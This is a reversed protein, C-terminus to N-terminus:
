ETASHWSAQVLVRRVPCPRIMFIPSKPMLLCSAPELGLLGEAATLGPKSRVSVGPVM